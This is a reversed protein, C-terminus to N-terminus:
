FSWCSCSLEELEVTGPLSWPTLSRLIVDLTVPVIMGLLCIMALFFTKDVLFSTLRQYKTWLPYQPM